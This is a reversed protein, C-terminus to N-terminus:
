ARSHKSRSGFTFCQIVSFSGHHELTSPYLVPKNAGPRQLSLVLLVSPSEVRSCRTAACESSSAWPAATLAYRSSKLGRSLPM